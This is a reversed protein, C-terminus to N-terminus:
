DTSTLHADTRSAGQVTYSVDMGDDAPIFTWTVNKVGHELIPAESYIRKKNTQKKDVDVRLARSDRGTTLTTSNETFTVGIKTNEGDAGPPWKIMGEYNGIFEDPVETPDDSSDGEDKEDKDEKGKDDDKEDSKDEKDAQENDSKVEEQQEQTAATEEKAKPSDDADQGRAAFVVLAVLTGLILLLIILITLLAKNRTTM